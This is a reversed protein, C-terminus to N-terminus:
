FLKLISLVIFGFGIAIGYRSLLLNRRIKKEVIEINKLDHDLIYKHYHKLSKELQNFYKTDKKMESYFTPSSIEPKLNNLNNLDNNFQDELTNKLSKPNNFDFSEKSKRALFLSYFGTLLVILGVVFLFPGNFNIFFQNESSNFGINEFIVLGITGIFLLAINFLFIKGIWEFFGDDEDYIKM